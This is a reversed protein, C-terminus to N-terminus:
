DDRSARAAEIRSLLLEVAGPKELFRALQDADGERGVASLVPAVVRLVQAASWALPAHTELWLEAAFELRREVLLSALREVLALEADTWESHSPIAFAHRFAGGLRRLWTRPANPTQDNTM